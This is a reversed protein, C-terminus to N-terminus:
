PTVRPNRFMTLDIRVVQSAGEDTAWTAGEGAAIDVVPGGIGMVGGRQGPGFPVQALFPDIRNTAPDTRYVNIRAGGVERDFLPSGLWVYGDAAVPQSFGKGDITAVQHTRPDVRLIPAPVSM